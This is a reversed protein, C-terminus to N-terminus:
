IKKEWLIYNGECFVINYHQRLFSEGFAKYNWNEVNSFAIKPFTKKQCCHSFIKLAASSDNYGMNCWSRCNASILITYDIGFFLIEEDLVTRREIEAIIKDTLQAKKSNSFIGYLHQAKLMTKCRLRNADCYIGSPTLFLGTLLATCLIANFTRRMSEFYQDLIIFAIPLIIPFGYLVKLLGTNTGFPFLVIVCCIMLIQLRNEDHPSQLFASDIKEIKQPILLALCLSIPLTELCRRYHKM